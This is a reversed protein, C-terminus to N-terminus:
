KVNLMDKDFEGVQSSYDGKLGVNDVAQVAYYYNTGVTGVANSDV